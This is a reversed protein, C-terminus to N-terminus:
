KAYKFSKNRTNLPNIETKKLTKRKKNNLIVVKLNCSNKIKKFTQNNRLQYVYDYINAKKKKNKRIKLLRRLNDTSKYINGEHLYKDLEYTTKENTYPEKSIDRLVNNKLFFDMHGIWLDSCQTTGLNKICHKYNSGLIINEWNPMPLQYYVADFYSKKKCNEKFIYTGGRLNAYEWSILKRCPNYNKLHDDSNNNRSILLYGDPKLIRICENFADIVDSKPLTNFVGNSIVIDYINDSIEIKKLSILNGFLDFKPIFCKSMNSINGIKWKDSNGVKVENAFVICESSIDVGDIEIICDSIQELGHKVSYLFAGAGCGADFIKIKKKKTLENVSIKDLITLWVQTFFDNYPKDFKSLENLIITKYNNKMYTRHNFKTLSLDLLENLNIHDTEWGNRSFIYNMIKEETGYNDIICGNINLTEMLWNKNLKNKVENFVKYIKEIKNM